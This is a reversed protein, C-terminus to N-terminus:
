SKANRRHYDLAAAIRRAAKAANIPYRQRLRAVEGDLEFASKCTKDSLGQWAGRTAANWHKHNTDSM